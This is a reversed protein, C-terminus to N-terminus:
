GGLPPMGLANRVKNIMNRRLRDDELEMSEVIGLTMEANSTIMQNVLGDISENRMSGEPISLALNLAHAPDDSVYESAAVQLAISYSDDSELNEIWELASESDQKIWNSTIEGVLVRRVRPDDISDYFQSARVPDQAPMNVAAGYMMAYKFPQEDALENAYDLAAFADERSWAEVVSWVAEQRSSESELTYAWEMAAYPDKRALSDGILGSVQAHLEADSITALRNKAEEPKNYALRHELAQLHNRTDLSQPQEGLWQKARDIDDVDWNLVLSQLAEVRTAGAPMTEVVQIAAEPNVEALMDVMAVTLRTRDAGILNESIWNSALEGDRRSLEKVLVYKLLDSEAPTGESEMYLMFSDIDRRAWDHMVDKLINSNELTNPLSYWHAIAEEPQNSAWARIMGEKIAFYDSPALANEASALASRPDISAWHAFFHNLTEHRHDHNELSTLVAMAGQPDVEAWRELLANVRDLDIREQQLQQLLYANFQGPELNAVELLAHVRKQYPSLEGNGFEGMGTDIVSVDYDTARDVDLQGAGSFARGSSENAQDRPLLLGIAFGISLFGACSGIVKKSVM